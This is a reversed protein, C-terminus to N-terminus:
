VTVNLRVDLGQSFRAHITVLDPRGDANVDALFAGSSSYTEIRLDPAFTGDSNQLLPMAELFLHDGGRDAYEMNALLLIDARRDGNLDRVRIQDLLLTGFGDGKFGPTVQFFTITPLANASGHTADGVGRTISINM